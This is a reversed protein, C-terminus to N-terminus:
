QREIFTINKWAPFSNCELYYTQIHGGLNNLHNIFEYYFARHNSRNIKGDECVYNINEFHEIKNYNITNVTANEKVLIYKSIPHQSIDFDFEIGLKNCIQILCFCGRLFDGFGYTKCKEDKKQYVNIIKKLRTNTFPVVRQLQMYM